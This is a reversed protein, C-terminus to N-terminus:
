KDEIAYTIIETVLNSTSIIASTSEARKKGKSDHSASIKASLASAKLM